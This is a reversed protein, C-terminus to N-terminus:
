TRRVGPRLLQATPGIACCQTTGARGSGSLSVVIVLHIPTSATAAASAIAPQPPLPLELEPLPELPLEDPLEPPPEVSASAASGLPASLNSLVLRFALAPVTVIWNALLDETGCATATSPLPTLLAPAVM